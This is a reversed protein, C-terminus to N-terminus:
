GREKSLGRNLCPWIVVHRITTRFVRNHLVDIGTATDRSPSSGSDFGVDPLFAVADPLDDAKM